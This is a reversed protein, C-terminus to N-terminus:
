VGTAPSDILARLSQHLEAQEAALGAEELGARTAEILASGFTQLELLAPRANAATGIGRPQCYSQECRQRSLSHYVACASPRVEHASCRGDILFACRLGAARHQEVTLGDIVQANARIRREIAAADRPSARTRLHHVLAMAEHRFVDVRLHCCFSCAPECAIAAGTAKKAAFEADITENRERCAAACREPPSDDDLAAARSYAATAAANLHQRSLEM